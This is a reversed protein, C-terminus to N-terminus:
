LRTAVTYGDRIADQAKGVRRADGVLHVEMAGELVSLLPHYSRMGTTIVIHEVREISRREEGHIIVSSGEIATVKYGTYIKVQQAALKKLTMTREIMEMGRAIEDMMEVITIRNHQELLKSAVEIGILGGGIILIHKNRLTEDKLSEAWSYAALGKVPPIIPQSGTALLVADYHGLLDHVEAEKRIMTISSQKLRVEYYELIRSLNEKHPPLPALTFQGGFADKEYLDVRHGRAELTLAAEMGALGGGIVAYHKQTTAQELPLLTNGAQPNVVCGLGQGSKVGGLCGDACAMCPRIPETMHGNLKAILDPDAVLGRGIAIYDIGSITIKELDDTTDIQGVAIVPLEVEARIQAAWEWTKGKPIFMHQFYWPPTHCVSGASVHLADVGRSALVKALAISEELTIGDPSMEQASLRIIIPLSVAEQIAKLVRLPFRLRNEFSGGYSDTRDNVALSLFQALLYGHGMQLEIIDIGAKQARVAAEAFQKCVAVMEEEEMRQPTAGGNECAQDTSSLHYNGPIKPNAMRGPHSLHAIVQAGKQHIAKTLATLGEIKDDSDIGLQTPIERLGSHLYLPELTVAAVGDSRRSYFDIHRTNVKGDKDAYGLKLPAMIFPNKLSLM